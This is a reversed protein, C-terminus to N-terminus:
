PRNDAPLVDALYGEIDPWTPRDLVHRLWSNCEHSVVALEDMGGVNATALPMLSRPQDPPASLARQHLEDPRVWWDIFVLCGEDSEHVIIFGIGYAGDLDPREPLVDVVHQRIAGVLTPPPRTTAVVGVSYIKLRWGRLDTLGVPVASM